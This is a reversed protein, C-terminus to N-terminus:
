TTPGHGSFDSVADFGGGAVGASALASSGSPIFSHHRRNSRCPLVGGWQVAEPSGMSPFGTGMVTVFFVFLSVMKSYSLRVYQLALLSPPESRQAQSADAVGPPVRNSVM